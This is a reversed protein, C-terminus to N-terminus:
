VEQMRVLSEPLTRFHADRHILTAEAISACAAIVVDVLPVRERTLTSLEFARVAVAMDIAVVEEALGAYSLAITRAEDHAHGLSVLRRALETICVSPILIRSSEDALIGQVREGQPEKFFHVLIASTDLLVTV